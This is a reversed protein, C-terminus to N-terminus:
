VLNLLIIMSAHVSNAVSQPKSRTMKAQLAAVRNEYTTYQVGFTYYAPCFYKKKVKVMLLLYTLLFTLLVWPDDAGGQWGRPVGM